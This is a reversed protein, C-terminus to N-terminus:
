PIEILAAPVTIRGGARYRGIDSALAVVARTRNIDVVTAEIGRLYKPKTNSNFRVTSGPTLSYLRQMALQEQRARVAQEIADLTEDYKGAAIDTQM